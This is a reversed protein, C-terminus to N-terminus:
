LQSFSEPASRTRARSVPTCRPNAAPLCACTHVFLASASDKAGASVYTCMVWRSTYGVLAVTKTGSRTRAARQVSRTNRLNALRSRVNEEKLQLKRQELELQKEGETIHWPSVTRAHRQFLHDIPRQQSFIRQDV